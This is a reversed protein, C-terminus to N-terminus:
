GQSEEEILKVSEAIRIADETGSHCAVQFVTCNRKDIWILLVTDPYDVVTYMEGPLGNIEIAEVEYSGKAMGGIHYTDKDTIQTYDLWIWGREENPNQYCIVRNRTPGWYDSYLVYGDPLWTPEYSPLDGEQEMGDKFLWTVENERYRVRWRLGTETAFADTAILATIVLAFVLCAAAASRISRLLLIHRRPPDMEARMLVDDDMDTLADLIDNAKM